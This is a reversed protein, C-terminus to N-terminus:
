CDHFTTSWTSPSSMERTSDCGLRFDVQFSQQREGPDLDERIPSPVATLASMYRSQAAYTVTNMFGGLLECIQAVIRFTLNSFLRVDLFCVLFPGYTLLANVIYVEARRSARRHVAGPSFFLSKCCVTCYSISCIGIASVLAASTVPDSSIWLFRVPSCSSGHSSYTFPSLGASLSTLLLAPVWVFHLACVLGGSANIHFAGLLVSVAIHMEILLSANRFFNLGPMSWKCIPTLTNETSGLMQGDVMVFPVLSLVFCIDVAALFRLQTPFLRKQVGANVRCLRVLLWTCGVLSCGGAVLEFFVLIDPPMM